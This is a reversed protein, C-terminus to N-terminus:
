EPLRVNDNEDNNNNTTASIITISDLLYAKRGSAVQRASSGTPPGPGGGVGMYPFWTHINIYIYM